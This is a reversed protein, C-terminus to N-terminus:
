HNIIGLLVTYTKEFLMLVVKECKKLCKKKLKINGRKYRKNLSSKHSLNNIRSELSINQAFIKFIKDRHMTIRKKGFNLM